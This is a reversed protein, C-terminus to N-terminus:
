AEDVLVHFYKECGQQKYSEADDSQTEIDNEPLVSLKGFSLNFIVSLHALSADLTCLFIFYFKPALFTRVPLRYAGFAPTSVTGTGVCTPLRVGGQM